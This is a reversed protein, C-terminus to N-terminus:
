LGSIVPAVVVVRFGSRRSFSGPHRRFRYACRGFGRYDDFAGGRVVRSEGRKPGRPNKVTSKARRQYEEKDYWDACWEWVNGSMDAAYPSDGDPSYQGVPTTDGPGAEGSNLKTEDWGNGWPYIRGDTGRAAKEWEAETPLRFTRGTEQSLWQCFAVADDWSVYVVPHNEKGSPIRGGGEWHEPARHKTAKVFAAYQANTVPYRGIYFESVYVPHQPQEDDYSGKDKAPDSGM